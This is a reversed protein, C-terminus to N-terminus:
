GIEQFSPWFKPSSRCPVPPTWFNLAGGGRNYWELMRGGVSFKRKGSVGGISLNIADHLLLRTVMPSRKTKKGALQSVSLRMVRESESCNAMKKHLIIKGVKSQDCVGQSLKTEQIRGFKARGVVGSPKWKQTWHASTTDALNSFLKTASKKDQGKGGGGGGCRSFCDGGWGFSHSGLLIATSPAEDRLSEKRGAPAWRRAALTYVPMKWGITGSFNLFSMKEWKCVNWMRPPKGGPTHYRRPKDPSPEGVVDSSPQSGAEVALLGLNMAVCAQPWLWDGDRLSM